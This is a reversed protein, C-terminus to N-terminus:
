SGVKRRLGLAKFEPEKIKLLEYADDMTRVVHTNSRTDQSLVSFMRGIGFVHDAPAVIVRILLSPVIPASDAIRRIFDTSVRFSTVQSFDIIGSTPKIDVFIDACLQLSEAFSNNTVEGGLRWCVVKNIPDFDFDSTM